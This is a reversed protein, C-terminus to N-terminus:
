FYVLFPTRSSWPGVKTQKLAISLFVTYQDEEHALIRFTWSIMLYLVLSVLEFMDEIHIGGVVMALAPWCEKLVQMHHVASTPGGVLNWNLTQGANCGM